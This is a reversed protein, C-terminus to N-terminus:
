LKRAKKPRCGNHPIPTTDIISILDIWSNSIGRVAQERGSGIGKISVKVKEIWYLAKANRSVAESTMQAAYPTSERSWKFGNAGCSSAILVKGDNDYFVVHTNNFTANIHVNAEQVVKKVKRTKKTTNPNGM